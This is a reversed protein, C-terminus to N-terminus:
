NFFNCFHSNSVMCRYSHQLISSAFCADAFFRAGFHRRWCLASGNGRGLEGYLLFSGNPVPVHGFHKFRIHSRHPKRSIKKVIGFVVAVSIVIYICLVWCSVISQGGYPRREHFVNGVLTFVVVLIWFYSSRTEHYNM